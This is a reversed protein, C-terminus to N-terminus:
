KIATSLTYTILMQVTDASTRACPVENTNM